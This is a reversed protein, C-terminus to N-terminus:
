KPAKQPKCMTKDYQLESGTGSMLASAVSQGTIAVSLSAKAPTPVIIM